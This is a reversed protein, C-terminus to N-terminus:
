YNWMEFNNKILKNEHAAVVLCAKLTVVTMSIERKLKVSKKRRWKKLTLRSLFEKEFYLWREDDHNQQTDSKTKKKSWQVIQTLSLSSKEREGGMGVMRASIVWDFVFYKQSQSCKELLFYVSRKYKSASLSQSAPLHHGSSTPRGRSQQTVSSLSALQKSVEHGNSTTSSASSPTLSSTLYQSTWDNQM